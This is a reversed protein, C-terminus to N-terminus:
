MQRCLYEKWLKRVSQLITEEAPIVDFLNHRDQVGHFDSGGTMYLGNKQAIAIFEQIEYQYHDPHWVELGDIGMAIFEDLYGRKVLKGPHAIIGFGGADHIISLAEPVSLEPKPVFAPKFNGIYKDFAENKTSCYGKAVLIQAIHPRVILERSGAVKVVDELTIHMGLQKLKAIMKIARDRRGALYMETMTFLRQNRLDFGLGLIHVDNGEHQSSIEMGPIIRLPTIDAPLMGYADATDHDTISILDLGIQRSRTILEAPSFSGDSVTTHLHLNIRKISNIDKEIM